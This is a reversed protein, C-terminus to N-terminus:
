QYDFVLISSSLDRVKTKKRQSAEEAEKKDRAKRKRSEIARPHMSRSSRGEEVERIIRAEKSKRAQDDKRAQIALTQQQAQQRDVKVFWSLLSKQPPPPPPKVPMHWQSPPLELDRYHGPCCWPVELDRERMV